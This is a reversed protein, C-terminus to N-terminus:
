FTWKVAKNPGMGKKFLVFTAARKRPGLTCGLGADWDILKLWSNAQNTGPDDSDNPFLWTARMQALKELESNAPLKLELLKEPKEFLSVVQARSLMKYAAVSYAFSAYELM